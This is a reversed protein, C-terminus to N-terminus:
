VKSNNKLKNVLGYNIITYVLINHNSHIFTKNSFNPFSNNYKKFYNYILIKKIRNKISQNISDM